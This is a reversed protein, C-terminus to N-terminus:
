PTVIYTDTLTFGNANCLDIWSAPAGVSADSWVCDNDIFDQLTSSYGAVGLVNDTVFNNLATVIANYPTNSLSLDQMQTWTSNAPVLTDVEFQVESIAAEDFSGGPDSVVDVVTKVNGTLGTSLYDATDSLPEVANTLADRSAATAEAIKVYFTQFEAM